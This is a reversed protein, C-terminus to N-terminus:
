SRRLDGTWHPETCRCLAHSAVGSVATKVDKSIAKSFMEISPEEPSVETAFTYYPRMNNLLRCVATTQEHYFSRGSM